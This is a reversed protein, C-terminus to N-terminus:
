RRLGEVAEDRSTGYGMRVGFPHVRSPMVRGATWSRGSGAVVVLGPLTHGEARWVSESPLLSPVLTRPARTYTTV